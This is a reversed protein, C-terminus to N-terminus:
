LDPREVGSPQSRARARAAARQSDAVVAGAAELVFSMISQPNQEFPLYMEPNVPVDLGWHKVDHVIGVIERWEEDQTFRVRGGLAPAGRWYRRAMTENIITVRPGTRDADTFGRGEKIRVGAAEMYGPTVTRPHARTPGDEPGREIGDIAIGNRM